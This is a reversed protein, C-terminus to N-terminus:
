LNSSNIDYFQKRLYIFFIISFCSKQKRLSLNRAIPAIDSSVRFTGLLEVSSRVPWNILNILCNGLIKPLTEYMNM